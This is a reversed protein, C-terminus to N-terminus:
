LYGQSANCDRHFHASAAAEMEDLQRVKQMVDELLRLLREREDHDHDHDHDDGDHDRDRDRLCDDCDDSESELDCRHLLAARMEAILARFDRLRTAADLLVIPGSDSICAGAAAPSTAAAMISLPSHGSHGPPSSPQRYSASAPPPEAGHVALARFVLVPSFPGSRLSPVSNVNGDESQSTSTIAPVFTDLGSPLHVPSDPNDAILFLFSSLFPPLTWPPSPIRRSNQVGANSEIESVSPLHSRRPCPSAQWSAKKPRHFVQSRVHIDFAWRDTVIRVFEMGKWLGHLHKLQLVVPSLRGLPRSPHPHSAASSSKPCTKLPSHPSHTGSPVFFATWSSVLSKSPM